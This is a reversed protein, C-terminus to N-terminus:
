RAAAMAHFYVDQLDPEAARFAPSPAGDSCVRVLTRGSLLKTSLVAHEVEIAALEDKSVVREWVRGRM